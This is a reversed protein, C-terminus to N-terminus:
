ALGHLRLPMTNQVLDGLALALVNAADPRYIPMWWHFKKAIYVARIFGDDGCEVQDDAANYQGCSTIFQQTTGYRREVWEQAVVIEQGDVPRQRMRRWGHQRMERKVLERTTRASM